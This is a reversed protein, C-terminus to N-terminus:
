NRKKLAKLLPGLNGSRSAWDWETGDYWTIKRGALFAGIKRGASRISEKDGGHYDMYNILSSDTAKIIHEGTIDLSHAMEGSIQSTIYENYHTFRSGVPNGMAVQFEGDGYVLNIFLEGRDIKDAYWEIPERRFEVM